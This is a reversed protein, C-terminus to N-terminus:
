LQYNMLLCYPSFNLWATKPLGTKTNFEIRTLFVYQQAVGGGRGFTLAMSCFSM